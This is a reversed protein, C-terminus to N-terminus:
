TGDTNDKIVPQWDPSEESGANEIGGYIYAWLTNADMGEVYAGTGGYCLDSM